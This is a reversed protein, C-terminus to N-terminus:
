RNGLTLGGAFHGNTQLIGVCHEGGSYNTEAVFRAFTDTVPPPPTAM